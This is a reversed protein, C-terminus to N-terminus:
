FHGFRQPHVLGKTVAILGLNRHPHALALRRGTKVFTTAMVQHWNFVKVDLVRCNVLGNQHDAVEQTLVLHRSVIFFSVAAYDPRHHDAPAVVAVLHHHDQDSVPLMERVDCFNGPFYTFPHRSNLADHLVDIILPGVDNQSRLVVQQPPFWGDM